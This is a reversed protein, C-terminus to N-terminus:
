DIRKAMITTERKENTSFQIAVKCFCRVPKNDITAPIWNNSQRIVQIVEEDMRYGAALITCVNSVTGDPEIIFSAYSTGSKLNEVAYASPHANKAVYKAFSEFGGPCNKEISGVLITDARNTSEQASVRCTLVILLSLFLTKKM